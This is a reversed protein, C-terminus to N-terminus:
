SRAGSLFFRAVVPALPAQPGPARELKARALLSRVTAILFLAFHAEEGARLEGRAVGLKVLREARGVVENLVSKARTRSRLISAEEEMVLQFLARHADFHGLLAGAFRELLAPFPAAEGERLVQDIRALVEQRRGELLAVLLQHRDGFHNYLTGVSVGAVAAIDDVRAGELGKAAFAEEAADLIAARTADRFRDKLRGERTSGLNM